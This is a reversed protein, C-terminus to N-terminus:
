LNTNKKEMPWESIIDYYDKLGLYVNGDLGWAKIVWVKNDYFYAGHIPFKGGAKTFYIRVKYGNRTQYYRGTTIKMVIKTKVNVDMKNHEVKKCAEIEQIEEHYLKLMEHITFLRQFPKPRGDNKHAFGNPMRQIFKDTIWWIFELRIKDAEPIM